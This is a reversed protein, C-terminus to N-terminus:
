DIHLPPPLREGVARVKFWEPALGGNRLLFYTISDDVIFVECWDKAHRTGRGCKQVLENMTIYNMYREDREMRAQMVKGRSDPFPVKVIVFWRCQEDPFDWGTGFSPSVLVGRDLKLFREYVDQARGSEPDNSNNAHFLGNEKEVWTSHKLYIQQRAYSVTDIIGKRGLAIGRSQVIEDVREVWRLQDAETSNKNLRVTKVHVIPTNRAPFM